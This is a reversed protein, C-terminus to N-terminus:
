NAGSSTHEVKATRNRALLVLIFSKLTQMPYAKNLSRQLWAKSHSRRSIARFSPFPLNCRCIIRRWDSRAAPDVERAGARSERKRRLAYVVAGVFLVHGQLRVM